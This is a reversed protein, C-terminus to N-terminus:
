YWMVTLYKNPFYEEKGKYFEWDIQGNKMIIHPINGYYAAFHGFTSDSGIIADCSALTLLDEGVNNKSVWVHLPEFLETDIRGDSTIIFRVEGSSLNNEVLYEEMIERAREPRVWYKGGKFTPYDGQRIHVGVITKYQERSSGVIGEVKRQILPHMVFYDVIKERHKLIGEPNRFIGGSLFSFFITGKKKEIRQLEETPPVTPPLYYLSQEGGLSTIVKTKFLLSIPWVVIIKYLKRWLRTKYVFRRQAYNRFPWSFIVQLVRPNRFNFYRAYEFFSWNELYFGREVCYAYISIFNWLQNGFEGGDHQLIVVKRESSPDSM